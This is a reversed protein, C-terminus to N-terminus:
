LLFDSLDRSIKKRSRSRGGSKWNRWCEQEAPSSVHGLEIGSLFGCLRRPETAWVCVCNESKELKGRDGGGSRWSSTGHEAQLKNYAPRPSVGCLFLYMKKVSFFIRGFVLAWIKWFCVDNELLSVFFHNSQLVPFFYTSSSFSYILTKWTTVRRKKQM